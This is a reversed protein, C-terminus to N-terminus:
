PGTEPAVTAPAPASEVASSAAVVGRFLAQSAERAASATSPDVATDAIQRLLDLLQKINRVFDGGSIEEDALVEDLGEGAAWAHALALFGPDPGRTLSLGLRREDANLEAAIQEIQEVRHRLTSSPFWP